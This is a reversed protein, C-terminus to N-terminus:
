GGEVTQVTDPISSAIDSAVVVLFAVFVGLLQWYGQYSWEQWMLVSFSALLLLIAILRTTRQLSSMRMFIWLLTVTLPVYDYQLAYPTILLTLIISAAVLGVPNYRYRYWVLGVIVLGLLGVGAIVFYELPPEIHLVYSFFDFATAYVRKSVTRDTGDLRYTIGHGFGTRDFEWWRPIAISALITLVVIWGSAWLVASPKRSLLWLGLFVVALITVQPKTIAIVLGLGILVPRDRKIAKLALALGFLLLIGAQESYLCYAAFMVVASFFAGWRRWGDAKWEMAVRLYELSLYFLVLNIILWLARAVQYPIFSLPAFFLCYWPPYYYPNNGSFGTLEELVPALQAYDYPNGGRLVLTGAAYYGRFDVGGGMFATVGFGLLTFFFALQTAFEL